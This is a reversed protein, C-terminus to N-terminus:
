LLRVMTLLTSVMFTHVTFDYFKQQFLM